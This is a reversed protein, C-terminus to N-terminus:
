DDVDSVEKLDGLKLFLDFRIVSSPKRHENKIYNYFSFPDGFNDIEPFVREIKAEAM